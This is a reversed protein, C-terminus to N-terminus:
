QKCSQLIEYAIVEWNNIIDNEWFSIVKYGSTEAYIRKKTDRIQNRVQVDNLQDYRYKKPNGHWYDGNCEIFLNNNPIFFDYVWYGFPKQFEFDIKNNNLFEKIKLEINTNIKNVRGEQYQKLTHERIIQKSEPDNSRCTISCYTEKTNKHYTFPEGCLKCNKITKRRWKGIKNAFMTKRQENATRITFGEENLVQKIKRTHINFKNAIFILSNGENYLNIIQDINIIPKTIGIHKCKRSCYKPKHKKIFSPKRHFESGCVLCKYDRQIESPM